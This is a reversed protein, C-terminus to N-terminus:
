VRGRSSCWIQESPNRLNLDAGRRTALMSGTSEEGRASDEAARSPLIGV